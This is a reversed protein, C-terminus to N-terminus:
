GTFKVFHCRRHLVGLLLTNILQAHLRMVDYSPATVVSVSQQRLGALLHAIM